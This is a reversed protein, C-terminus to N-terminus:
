SGLTSKEIGSVSCIFKHCCAICVPDKECCASGVVSCCISCTGCNELIWDSACDAM